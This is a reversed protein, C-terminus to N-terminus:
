EIEEMPLIVKKNKNVASGIVVHDPQINRLILGGPELIDGVEDPNMDGLFCRYHGDGLDECFDTQCVLNRPAHETRPNVLRLDVYIGAAM